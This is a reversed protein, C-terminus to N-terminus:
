YNKVFEIIEDRLTERFKAYKISRKYNEKVYPLMENYTEPTILNCVNVIDDLTKVIFMGRVDFFNEINPCGLYIPITNTQFCDILKESFYNPQCVNEISIHYQSYFLENKIDSNQIFRDITPKGNYPNNKSNFLHLPVSTVQNIVTPLEQRVIHNLTLKKGGVISTVCYEKEKTLDFDLIWSMGHPFLRANSCNDLVEKHWTLILDFEKHRNIVIDRLGAIENPEVSWLVRLCQKPSSPFTDVYLQCPKNTQIDVRIDWNSIKEVTYM